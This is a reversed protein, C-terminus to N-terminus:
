RMHPRGILKLAPKLTPNRRERGSTPVVRTIMTMRPISCDLESEYKPPSIAPMMRSNIQEVANGTHAMSPSPRRRLKPRLQSSVLPSASRITSTKSYLTLQPPIAATQTAANAPSASSALDAPCLCDSFVFRPLVNSGFHGSGCDGPLRLYRCADRHIRKCNIEHNGLRWPRRPRLLQHEFAVPAM